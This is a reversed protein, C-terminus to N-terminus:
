VRHKGEKLRLFRPILWRSRIGNSERRSNYLASVSNVAYVFHEV